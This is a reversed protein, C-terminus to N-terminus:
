HQHNKAEEKNNHAVDLREKADALENGASIEDSPIVGVNEEFWDELDDWVQNVM